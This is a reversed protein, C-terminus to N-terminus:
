EKKTTNKINEIYKKAKEPKLDFKNEIKQLIKEKSIGEELAFEIFIRICEEREDERGDEYSWRKENAIHAQEDYETLIM